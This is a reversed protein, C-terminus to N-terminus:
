RSRGADKASSCLKGSWKTEFETRAADAEREKVKEEKELKTLLKKAEELTKCGYEKQLTELLQDLKGQSREAQRQLSDAERKLSQYEELTM